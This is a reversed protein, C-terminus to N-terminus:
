RIWEVTGDMSLLGHKEGLTVDALYESAGDWDQSFRADDFWNESIVRGDLGIFNRKGGLEVIAFKGRFRSEGDFWVPSLFKGTKDIFNYKGNSSVRSIGGIFGGIYDFWMPLIARGGADLCNAKGNLEACKLGEGIDYVSDYMVGNLKLRDDAHETEEPPVTGDKYVVSASSPYAGAEIYARFASEMKVIFEATDPRATKISELFALYTQARNKM